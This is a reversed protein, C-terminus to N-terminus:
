EELDSAYFDGQSEVQHNCLKCTVNKGMYVEVDKEATIRLGCRTAYPSRVAHVKGNLYIRPGFGKAM